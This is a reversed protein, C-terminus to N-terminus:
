CATTADHGSVASPPVRDLFVKEVDLDDFGSKDSELWGLLDFDDDTPTTTQQATAPSFLEQPLPPLASPVPPMGHDLPPQPWANGGGLLPWLAPIPETCVMPMHGVAPQEASEAEGPRRLVLSTAQFCQTEGAPDRLPECSVQHVFSEGGKTYNTLRLSIPRQERVAQMLAALSEPETQAGQMIKLTRGVAEERTWGSLRQWGTSVSLIKYPARAETIVQVIGGYTHLTRGILSSHCAAVLRAAVNPGINALSTPCFGGNTARPHDQMAPLHSLRPFLPAAMPWGFGVAGAHAERLLQSPRVLPEHLDQLYAPRQLEGIGHADEEPLGHADESAPADECARAADLRPMPALPIGAVRGGHAQRKRQRHGEEGAGEDEEEQDATGGCEALDATIDESSGPPSATSQTLNSNSRKLKRERQRRNQFWVQIQRTSVELKEGLRKRTDNNPFQDLLFVEELIALTTADIHWRTNANATERYSPNMMTM